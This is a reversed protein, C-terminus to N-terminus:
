FKNIENEAFLIINNLESDTWLEKKKGYYEKVLKKDLLYHSITM